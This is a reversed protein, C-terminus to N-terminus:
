TAMKGYSELREKDKLSFAIEMDAQMLKDLLGSIENKMEAQLAMLDSLTVPDSITGGSLEIKKRIDARLTQLKFFFEQYIQLREPRGLMVDRNLLVYFSDFCKAVVPRLQEPLDNYHEQFHYADSFFVTDVNLRKDSNGILYDTSVGFFKALSCLTEINPEKGEKEYGGITSRQKNIIKGLEEQNLGRENRLESLRKSFIESM